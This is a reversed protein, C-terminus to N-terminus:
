FNSIKLLVTLILVYICSNRHMVTYLKLRVLEQISHVTQFCLACTLLLAVCEQLMYKIGPTKMHDPALQVLKYLLFAGHAIFLFSIVLLYLIEARFSTPQLPKCVSLLITKRRSPSYRSSVTLLKTTYGLVMGLHTRPSYKNVCIM